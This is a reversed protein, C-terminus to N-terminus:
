RGILYVTSAIYFVLGAIAITVNFLTVYVMVVPLSCRCTRLEHLTASMSRTPLYRLPILGPHPSALGQYPMDPSEDNSEQPM